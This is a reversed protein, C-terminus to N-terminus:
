FNVQVTVSTLTSAYDAGVINSARSTNQVSASLTAQKRPTWTLAVSTNSLRDQRESQILPLPGGLYRVNSLDTRLGLALKNRMQWDLGLSLRETSSYNADITQYTDPAQSWVATVVTQGTPTWKGEAGFLTGSYDRASVHPHVVSRQAIHFDVSKSESAAWHVRAEHEVQDFNNDFFSSIAAPPNLYQGASVRATLSVSDGSSFLRQVSLDTAVSSFDSGAAQDRQSSQLTRTMGTSVSWPGDAGYIADLRTTRNTNLYRVSNNQVEAYNNLTEQSSSSLNGRLRPTIAFQWAANYNSATYNLYSFNQYHVDVLNLNLGFSQLSQQTKFGLGATATNIQEQAQNGAAASQRFLNSDSQSSLVARLDFPNDTEALAAGHGLALTAPLCFM